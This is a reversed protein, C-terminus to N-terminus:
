RDVEFSNLFLIARCIDGRAPDGSPLASLADALMRRAACLRWAAQNIRQRHGAAHRRGRRPQVTALTRLYGGSVATSHNSM